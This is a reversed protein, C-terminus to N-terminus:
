KGNATDILQQIAAKQDDPALELAKQAYTVADSIQGTQQLIQAIAYPHEYNTPELEELQRLTNVTNPLDQQALYLNTLVTLTEIDQPDLARIREYAQIAKEEEGASQYLSALLQNALKVDEVNAPDVSALSREAWLIASDLDDMDRYLLALNRMAGTNNPQREIVQLFANASDQLRNLRAYAVGLSSYLQAVKPLNEVGQEMIAAARGFDGRREYFDYLLMYTQDYQQDISLSQLYSQVAEEDDGRALLASGRENWLHAANPSLEVAVDYTAISKDRMAAREEETGTIDSWTRYLRALNATHDTNLPNADQADQLVLEASRLLDLRNMQNVQEPQLQLVTDLTADDPLHYSGEESSQKAQELLARGLFLMYHDEAPRANLARRYLEVSSLWNRQSDFQQGQKYIIDAKVLGINVSNVILVAVVALVVATASAVLWHQAVAIHRNKLWPWAYVVGAVLLWIILIWTYVAFHGAVQQLQGQLDTGAAEPRMRSAEYLGYLFWLGWIILAHLAYGRAWWAAGPSRRQQLSEAALGITAAVFWTFVMLFLIAPSRVFEDGVVRRAVSGFLIDLTQSLHRINTTYIFVFTLFVLIDTMITTSLWPLSLTPGPLSTNRRQGKRKGSKQTNSNPEPAVEPADAVSQAVAFQEPLAWKMGLVLLLATYIWFYTRSAAIAIGFNIEVFHAAITAVLTVILLQRAQDSRDIRLDTHLFAALTVYVGLGLMMGAPLAVGFFRWSNDYWRFLLVFLVSFFLLLGGYLLSDRRNILLGLWRLAWYFISVFISLYAIFGLIGTIVLSDWTENHARDPSANRAEYHALDPPYFPNYAIWMAEPGYGVLPRISNIRDTSGDPYILPEHPRVMKEAGQWILVRVRGTGGESELLSTLRGLHPVSKLGEFAPLTNAAILFVAGLIGLSIWLTTWLRHRRPRLATFLLLVFLYVGLMWGLWPGRSQTWFIALAQVMLVFLYAGGALATPLDQQDVMDNPKYGLLHAFSSYVRELTFFFAMILYAALFIANGANAAIRTTTDGGWPLPDIGYHQIVGYIAIPLSTIIVAHQLRRIQVPERLHGMTILAIVMYSLFTYTGQLRQYSGWWSVHPAVSTITSIAYVVILLVIPLLFPTHVFKSWWSRYEDADVRTESDPTVYAPLWLKSSNAFKVLWAVGMVIAITRILSIKDPEFVRSSFVNFFLPALVLAALWGAEITASLWADLKSKFSM